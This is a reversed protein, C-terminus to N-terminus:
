LVLKLVVGVHLAWHLIRMLQRVADRYRELILSHDGDANAVGHVHCAV